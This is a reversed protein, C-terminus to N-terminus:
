VEKMGEILKDCVTVWDMIHLIRDPDTDFQYIDDNQYIRLDLDIETPKIKYEMCFFAAYIELQTEKTPTVGNKLDFIRLLRDGFSISDATGFANYSYFLVTETKMRYGICDNVYMNLTQMTNPLKIGLDILEKALAHLRSGRAATMHKDYSDVIKEEDYNIWHYKSPSLFAHKGVLDSHQNFIM